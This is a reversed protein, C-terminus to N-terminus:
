SDSHRLTYLECLCDWGRDAVACMRSPPHIFPNFPGSILQPHRQINSYQNPAIDALLVACCSPTLLTLTIHQSPQIDTAMNEM